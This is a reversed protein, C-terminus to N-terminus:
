KHKGLLYEHLKKKIYGAHLIFKKGNRGGFLIGIVKRKDNLIPCGSAGKGLGRDVTFCNSFISQTHAAEDVDNLYRDVITVPMSYSKVKEFDVYDDTENKRFTIDDGVEGNEKKENVLGEMVVREGIKPRHTEFEFFNNSLLNIKAFALDRFVNNKQNNRQKYEVCVSLIAILESNKNPFTCYYKSLPIEGIRYKEFVHGATVIDGASSILFATGLHRYKGGQEYGILLLQGHQKELNSKCNM